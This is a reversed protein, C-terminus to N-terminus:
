EEAVALLMLLGEKPVEAAELASAKKGSLGLPMAKM